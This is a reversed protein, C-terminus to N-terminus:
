DAPLHRAQKEQIELEREAAAMPDLMVPPAAEAVLEAANFHVQSYQAQVSRKMRLMDRFTEENGHAVEFERWARWFNPDRNPDSFQSAHCYIARARSIEGLGQEVHAYQLCMKKVQDDPLEEVAKEYITRTKIVGFLEATKAIYLTFMDFKEESTVSACAREYIRLAHKALGFEEELKAYLLYLRRALKPPVDAVAQEFLERSRELKTGGFREVVKTLYILYIDNLHPWRFLSIGREYVKFSEEYYKQEQLYQAFNIILQPTIVKLSFMKDYCSRVTEITGFNEEIDACLSWLKVSRYLRAQASDPEANQPKHISQRAVKLAQSYERHRLEMEVWECWVSSLDDIGRFSVQTARSWVVRANDLDEFEEYYRAFRSWLVQLRGVAKLPSVTRVADSFTEIVKVPQKRFLAVRHLWENVNHPNQRLKVSSVLEPRRSMLRELRNMYLDVEVTSDATSDERKDMASSEEDELKAAVLSEEFAAYADFVMAFDHLTTVSTVGEEYVDRVKEILGLRIFHDALSCWLRGVEDSFRMIGCRLVEEVRICRISEPHGSLLECLEMWLEHKSKAEISVFSDNNIAKGLLEAAEEWLEREKLYNIFVEVKEPYIMVYRKLMVLATQEVGCKMVFELIDEWIKEHQTLPIGRLCRDYTRRTRTILNQDQLFGCYLLWMRPKKSHHVLCREFIDNVKEVTLRSAVSQSSASTLSVSLPSPEASSSAPSPLTHKILESTSLLTSFPNPLYFNDHASHLKSSLGTPLLESSSSSSATAPAHDSCQPKVVEVSEKLYNHWLKYSRPLYGLAREYISRRWSNIVISESLSLQKGDISKPKQKSQLYSTWVKVRYPDRQLEQEYLFDTDHKSTGSSSAAM